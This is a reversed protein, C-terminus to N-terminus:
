LLVGIVSADIVAAGSSQRVAIRSGAPIFSPMFFNPSTFIVEASTTQFSLSGIEVESGSAGVGVSITQNANNGVTDAAISPIVCVGRYVNSTSAVIETYTNSTALTTGQSTALDVGLSDFSKPQDVFDSPNADFPKIKISATKGGTVISQLRAAIRSGASIQVPIIFQVGSITGASQFAASGCAFNFLETESGSAGVGISIVSATNVTSQSIAGVDIILMSTDGPVSAIVETWAGFTHASSNATLTVATNNIRPNTYSVDLYKPANLWQSVQPIETRGGYRTAM